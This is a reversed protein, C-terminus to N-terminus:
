VGRELPALVQRRLVVAYASVVVALYATIAATLLGAVGHSSGLWLKLPLVIACFLLVVFVQPKVIGCGNLYAGFASGVADFVTWIAFLVLVDTPVAIASRTWTSVLWPGAVVLAVSLVAAGLGSITMSRKLARRIFSMDQRAHADAYAAWLPANMIAFPQSAFQFLRLGVAYVAVESTGKVLALIFSDSGWGLMTGLQLLVFLSGARILHPRETRMATGGHRMHITGRVLLLAGAAIGALTQVGFTAALLWPVGAHRSSAVWLTLCALLTALSTLLNAEHSRQQGALIRLLGTAFLNIGFCLAFVVATSRAEIAMTADSIKMLPGWPLLLALGLLAGSAAIGILVLLGAGGTAIRRVAAEDERAIAYAIRNVLANGVGLDLLSLMAAMSAFTAWVGFRTTGLYETTLRVGLVMLLMALGRSGFNTLTAWRALRFRQRAHSEPTGLGVRDSAAASRPDHPAFADANAHAARM